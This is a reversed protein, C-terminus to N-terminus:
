FAGMCIQNDVANRAVRFLVDFTGDDTTGDFYERYTLIYAKPMYVSRVTVGNELCDLQIDAFCCREGFSMVSWKVLELIPNEENERVAPIIGKVSLGISLQNGRANSSHPSTVITKVSRIVTEDLMITGFEGTIKIVMIM